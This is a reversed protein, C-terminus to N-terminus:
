QFATPSVANWYGFPLSLRAYADSADLSEPIIKAALAYTSIAVTALLVGALVSRWRPAALRM